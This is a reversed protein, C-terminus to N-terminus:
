EIATGHWHQWRKEWYLNHLQTTLKGPGQEGGLVVDDISNIPMIGGATSTLFAEDAEKLEAVTIKRLQAKLGLEAALEFVTKRTIGELCGADPSALEGQKIIFINAGPAEALYGDNDTLVSFDKGGDNAEFLSQKLDMWHFNKGTADISTSPIRRYKKSVLIDLGRTRLDDGAIFGYATVYAYFCNEFSDPNNQEIRKVGKKFISGRTVCFFVYTDQLGTLQVLKMLIAKMEEKSYPNTLRFKQCSEELRQLHDELRFFDGKSVSVADYAADGFRFGSDLLPIKAERVGCYEGDVFASGEEYCDEYVQRAHGQDTKMLQEVEIINM